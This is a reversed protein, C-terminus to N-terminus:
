NGALKYEIGVNLSIAKYGIAVQNSSTISPPCYLMRAEAILGINRYVTPSIGLGLIFGKSSYRSYSVGTIDELFTGNFSSGSLFASQTDSFYGAGANVYLLDAYRYEPIVAVYNQNIQYYGGSNKPFSAGSYTLSLENFQSFTNFGIETGIRFGKVVPASVAFAGMGNGSRVLGPTITAAVAEYGVLTKGLIYGGKVSLTLGKQAQVFSGCFLITFVIIGNQILKM